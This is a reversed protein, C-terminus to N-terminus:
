ILKEGAEFELIRMEIANLELRRAIKKIFEKVDNVRIFNNGDLISVELDKSDSVVTNRIKDSLSM